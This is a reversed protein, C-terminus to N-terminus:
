EEKLYLRCGKIFDDRNRADKPYSYTRFQVNIGKPVYGGQVSKTQIREGIEKSLKKDVFTFIYVRNNQFPIVVDMSRVMMKIAYVVGELVGDSITAERKTRQDWFEVQIMSFPLKDEEAKTLMPNLLLSFITDTGFVPLTFAFSNGNGSKSETQIFGQHGEIIEKTVALGLGTVVGAGEQIKQGQYFRDFVRPLDESPISRGTDTVVLKLYNRGETLGKSDVVIKGGSPTLKMGNGILNVFVEVLRHRDGFILPTDPDLHNEFAIKKEELQQSLAMWAEDIVPIVRVPEFKLKLEKGSEIRSFDNLADVMSSLRAINKHAMGLYEKQDETLSGIREELVLSFVEKIVTLPTHLEQSIGAIFDSRLQEARKQEESMKELEVSKETLDRILDKERLVRNLKAKMEDSTFPKTIYDTAGSGVVDTYTYSAGPGAMCISPLTPFETRVSKMLAFGDMEPMTMDTILLTFSGKRLIELAEKGDKATVVDHGMPNAVKAVMDRISEEDDVVLIREKEAVVV